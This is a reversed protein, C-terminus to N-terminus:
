LLDDQDDRPARPPPTDRPPHPRADLGYVRAVTGIADSARDTLLHVWRAAFLLFGVAGVFLWIGTLYLIGNHVPHDKILFMILLPPAITLLTTVLLAAVVEVLAHSIACTAVWLAELKGPPRSWDDRDLPDDNFRRM